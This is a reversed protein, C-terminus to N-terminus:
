VVLDAEPMIKEPTEAVYATGIGASTKAGSKLVVKTYPKADLHGWQADQEATHREMSEIDAPDLTVSAGNYYVTLNLITM